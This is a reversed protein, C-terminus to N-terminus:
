EGFLDFLTVQASEPLDDLIGGYELLKQTASQGIGTRQIFEERNRFEGGSDRAQVIQEAMSDSISDIAKFPPRILGKGIKKFRVAESDYLDIPAFDIGRAYMEEVIECLYFESKVKPNDDQRMKEQLEKRRLKVKDWGHCM